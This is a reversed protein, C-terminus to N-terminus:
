NEGWRGDGHDRPPSDGYFERALALVDAETLDEADSEISGVVRKMLEHDHEALYRTFQLVGNSHGKGNGIILIEAAPRLADALEAYWSKEMRGYWGEPNNAKHHMKHLRGRPDEPLIRRPAGDSADTPFIEAGHYSILLIAHGGPESMAPGASVDERERLGEATIGAAGLMRRLDVVMQEDIDKGNPRHLMETEGGVTVKFKGNHEETVEGVAELLSLVDRWEINHSVPHSLIAEATRRHHRDLHTTDPQSM